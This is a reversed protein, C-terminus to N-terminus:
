RTWRSSTGKGYPGKFGAAQLAIRAEKATRFHRAGAWGTAPVVAWQGGEAESRDVAKQKLAPHVFDQPRLLFVEAGENRVDRVTEGSPLAPVDGLRRRRPQALAALGLLALAGLM